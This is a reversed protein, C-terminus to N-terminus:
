AKAHPRLFRHEDASMQKDQAGDFPTGIRKGSKGGEATAREGLNTSM